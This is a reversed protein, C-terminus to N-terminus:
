NAVDWTPDEAALKTAGPVFSKDQILLPIQTAPITGAKVTQAIKRQASPVNVNRSILEQEVLDQLSM